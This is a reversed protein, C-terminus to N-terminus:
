SIFFCSMKSWSPFEFKFSSDITISFLLIGSIIRTSQVIVDRCINVFSAIRKKSYIERLCKVLGEADFSEIQNKQKFNELEDVDVGRNSSLAELTPQKKSVNTSVSSKPVCEPM